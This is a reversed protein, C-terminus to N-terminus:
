RIVVINAIMFDISNFITLVDELVNGSYAVLPEDPISMRAFRSEGMVKSGRSLAKTGGTNKNLYWLAIFHLYAGAATQCNLL